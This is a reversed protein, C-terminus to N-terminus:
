GHKPNDGLRQGATEIVAPSRFYARRLPFFSTWGGNDVSVFVTLEGNERRFDLVASIKLRYPLGDTGIIWKSKADKVFRTLEDSSLRHLELLESQACQEAVKRNM